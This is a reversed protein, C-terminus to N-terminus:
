SETRQARTKRVAHGHFHFGACELPQVLDCKIRRFEMRAQQGLRKLQRDEEHALRLGAIEARAEDALAADAGLYRTIQRQGRRFRMRYIPRRGPRHEVYISGQTRLLEIDTRAFGLRALAPTPTEDAHGNAYDPKNGPM